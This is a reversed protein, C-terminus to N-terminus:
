QIVPVQNTLVTETRAEMGLNKVEYGDYIGLAHTENTISAHGNFWYMVASGERTTAILRPGTQYAVTPIPVDGICFSGVTIATADTLVIQTSNRCGAVSLYIFTALAILLAFCFGEPTMKMGHM